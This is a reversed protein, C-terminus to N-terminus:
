QRETQWARDGCSITRTPSTSRSKQEVRELSRIPLSQRPCSPTSVHAVPLSGQPEAWQPRSEQGVKWAQLGQLSVTTKRNGSVDGLKQRKNLADTFRPSGALKRHAAQRQLAKSQLDSAQPPPPAPKLHSHKTPLQSPHVTGIQPAHRTPPVQLALLLVTLFDGWIGHLLGPRLSRLPRCPVYAGEKPDRGRPRM